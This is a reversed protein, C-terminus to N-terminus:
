ETAHCTDCETLGFATKDNHCTGCLKGREFERHKMATPKAPKGKELIKWITPHCRTCMPKAEDVHSSHRFTVKGPSQDSQPFTYDAPLKPLPKALGAGALALGLVLALGGIRKTNM